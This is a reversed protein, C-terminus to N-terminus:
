YPAEYIQDHYNGDSFILYGDSNTASIPVAVLATPNSLIGPLPGIEPNGNLEM